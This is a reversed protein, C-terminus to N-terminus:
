ILKIMPGDPEKGDKSDYEVKGIPGGSMNFRLRDFKQTVKAKGASDVDKINWTMDITQGVEVDIDKRMVSMSMTVKQDMVYNLKEGKKFKYRLTTQASAREAAGALLLVALLGLM